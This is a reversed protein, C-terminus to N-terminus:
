KVDECICVRTGTRVIQPLYTDLEPADFWAVDLDRGDERVTEVKLGLIIGLTAADQEFAKYREGIRFLLVADPHKAKMFDFQERRTKKAVKPKDESESVDSKGEATTEAAIQKGDPTFGLDAIKKEIKAVNKDNKKKAKALSDKYAEPCWKIGLPEIFNELLRKTENGGYEIEKRIWERIIRNKQDSHEHVYKQIEQENNWDTIKLERQLRRSSRLMLILAVDLELAELPSNDLVSKEAIVESGAVVYSSQLGNKAFELERMLKCVSMPTGKEDCNINTSKEKVNYYERTFSPSSWDLLNIVPYIRGKELLEPIREDDIGYYCKGDFISLDNIFEYGNENAIAELDDVLKRAEATAYSYHDILLVAKGKAYPEGKRVLEDSHKALMDRMYQLEKSYFRERNTCKASSTKKMEWFLCGHNDTNYSCESCKTGCGGAYDTDKEINSKAWPARDLLMFLGSIYSEAQAKTYTDYTGLTKQTYFRRQQQEDLKAILMAASISMRDEKVAMLLEPILNNLKIRDTVFRTNKGFRHAIEYTSKGKKALQGFAFAEEIPDVDQRQLNETIMADFADDDSMEKVNCDITGFKIPDIHELHVIARYRREGCVVEYKCPTSVVQGDVLYDKYEIPRVLIPQLLGQAEISRALELIADEDITKRPNMPSTSVLNIPIKEIAM